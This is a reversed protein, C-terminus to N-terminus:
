VKNLDKHSHFIIHVTSCNEEAGCYATLCSDEVLSVLKIMCYIHANAPSLKLLRLLSTKM